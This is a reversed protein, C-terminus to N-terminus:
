GFENRAADLVNVGMNTDVDGDLNLLADITVCFAFASFPDSSMIQM